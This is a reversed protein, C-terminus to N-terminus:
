MFNPDTIPPPQDDEQEQALIPAELTDKTSVPLSMSNRMAIIDDITITDAKKKLKNKNNNPKSESFTKAILNDLGMVFSELAADPCKKLKKLIKERIEKEDIRSIVIKKVLDHTWRYPKPTNRLMYEKDSMNHKKSKADLNFNTNELSM